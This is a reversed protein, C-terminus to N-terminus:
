CFFFVIQECFPFFTSFFFRSGEKVYIKRRATQKLEIKPKIRNPVTHQQIPANDANDDNNSLRFIYAFSSPLLIFLACLECILIFHIRLCEYIDMFASALRLWTVFMKPFKLNYKCQM